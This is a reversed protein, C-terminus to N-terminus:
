RPGPLARFWWFQDAPPTHSGWCAARHLELFPSLGRKTLRAKLRGRETNTLLGTRELETLMLLGDEEDFATDPDFILRWAHRFSVEPQALYFRVGTVQGNTWTIRTLDPM